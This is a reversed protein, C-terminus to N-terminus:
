VPITNYILADSIAAFEELKLTEARRSPEVGAKTLAILVEAKTVSEMTALANHLTKRRQGFGAKIVSFFLQESIPCVSKEKLMDLRIVASDVKPKPRFVEKSVYFIIQPDCHYRVLATIAGCERSGNEACIRVAAEKQIMFTMSVASINGELLGAIISTTIYYPLNGIIKFVSGPEILSSLDTKMIDGNVLRINDYDSLNDELVPLLRKDLEVAIVRKAREAAVATLVGIGPGIEIVTDDKTIGAGEIIMDTINQDVLFNQGLSKSPQFGYRRKIDEIVAPSYLKKM